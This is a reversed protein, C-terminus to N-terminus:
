LEGRNQTAGMPSWCVPGIGREISVPVTLKRGCRGCTPGLWARRDHKDSM